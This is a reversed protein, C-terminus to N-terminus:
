GDVTIIVNRVHGHQLLVLFYFDIQRYFVAMTKPCVIFLISKPTKLKYMSFCVAEERADVPSHEEM